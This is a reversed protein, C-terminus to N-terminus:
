DTLDFFEYLGCGDGEVGFRKMVGGKMGSLNVDFTPPQWFPSWDSPEVRVISLVNVGEAEQETFGKTLLLPFALARANSMSINSACAPPTGPLCSWVVLGIFSCAALSVLTVIVLKM